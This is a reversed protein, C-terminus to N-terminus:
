PSHAGTPEDRQRYAVVADGLAPFLRTREDIGFRAVMERQPGSLGTIWTEVGRARLEEGLDALVSLATVELDPVVGLDLVAVDVATARDVAAAATRAVRRVNAFYLTGRPRLILLGPPTSDPRGPSRRHLRDHEDLGVVDVPPRNAQALLTAMSVAVAVLVGALVGLVLVGALAVLALVGDRVRVHVIRRLEAPQVLGYAAVIVLAGLTADALNELLGTMVTLVLAVVGVTVLASVQTRAGADRNVASQSLGGGTPYAQFLGAGINACGLAVLERDTDIPPVNRAALARGASVSEVTSMLAVGAAGPVLLRWDDFPPVALEPLGAPVTGIVAVGDQALDLAAVVVIGGVVTLLPGPVRRAWRRMAALLAITGAGLALTVAHVDDLGRAADALNSFFGDGGIPIGLVKGLQGSIIVLGTGAKFGALIPLSVFDALFGVRALGGVLLLAGSMFALLAAAEPGGGTVAIASATLISLTSTVSVSLVRSTGLLAYVLMPVLAAYLGVEVPLGAVGAYAVAQPVVVCATVLGAVLDGSLWGRHYGSWWPALLRRGPAEPPPRSM